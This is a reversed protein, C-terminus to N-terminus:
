GTGQWEGAVRVQDRGQAKAQYMADDAARVLVRWGAPDIGGVAVGFSATVRLSEGSALRIELQALALRLSEALLRGAGLEGDALLVLFEEGGYRAISDDRRLHRQLLQAVQVLVEDGAAHGLGDNIAKFRDVDLLIVVATATGAAHRQQVQQELARRNLLGTLQDTAALERLERTLASREHSKARLVEIADFLRQMEALPHTARQEPGPADAAIQIVQRQAQLLPRLIQVQAIRVAIALIALTGLATALLTALRVAERHRIHEFRTISVGLYGDRLAELSQLTPVYRATFEAATWAPPQGRRGDEIVQEVMPLSQTFFQRRAMDWHRSLAPDSRFVSEHSAALRWLELLRGETQQAARVQQLRWADPVALPVMVNSALRGGHERLDSLIQGQMAPIAAERDASVLDSIQAATLLQLRDVVAFMSSIAREVAVAEREDSSQAIAQDVAARASRLRRQADALLPGEDVARPDADFVVQLQALATDSRQRAETLLLQLRAQERADSTKAGLLSNAPGREASVRNVAEFTQRVQRLSILNADANAYRLGGQVLAIAMLPLTCLAFLGILVWIRAQLGDAPANRRM